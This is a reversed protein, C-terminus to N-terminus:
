LMIVCRMCLALDQRIACRFEEVIDVMGYRSTFIICDHMFLCSSNYIYIYIYIYIHMDIFNTHCNEDYNEFDFIRISCMSLNM